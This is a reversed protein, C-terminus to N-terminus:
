KPPTTGRAVEEIDTLPRGWVLVTDRSVQLTGSQFGILEFVDGMQKLFVLSTEPLTHGYTISYVDVEDKAQLFSGKPKKYVKRLRMLWCPVYRHGYAETSEIRKQYTAVAVLDARQTLGTLSQQQLIEEMQRGAKESDSADILSERCLNWRIEPEVQQFPPVFRRERLLAVVPKGRPSEYSGANDVGFRLDGSPLEGKYSRLPRITLFDGHIMGAGFPWYILTDTVAVITGLLVLDSESFDRELSEEDTLPRIPALSVPWGARACVLM